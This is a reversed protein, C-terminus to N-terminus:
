HCDAGTSSMEVRIIIIIVIIIIHRNTLHQLMDISM